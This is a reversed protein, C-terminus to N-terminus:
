CTGAAEWRGCAARVVGRTLTGVPRREIPDAVLFTVVSRYGVVTSPRWGHEALLWVCWSNM